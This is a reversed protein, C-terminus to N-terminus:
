NISFDVPFLIYTLITHGAERRWSPIEECLLVGDKPFLNLMGCDRIRQV